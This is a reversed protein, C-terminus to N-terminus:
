SEWLVNVNLLMLPTKNITEKDRFINKRDNQVM